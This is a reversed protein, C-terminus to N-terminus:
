GLKLAQYTGTTATGLANAYGTYMAQQGAQKYIGAQVDANSLALIANDKSQAYEGGAERRAYEQLSLASGSLPDVGVAARAVTTALNENLNRLVRAAQMKYETAKSKGKLREQAAQANYMAKQSQAAKISLGASVASGVVMVKAATGLAAFWAM